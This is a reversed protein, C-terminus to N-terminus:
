AFYGTRIDATAVLLEAGNERRLESIAEELRLIISHRKKYLNTLAKYKKSNFTTAKIEALTNVREEVRREVEAQLQSIITPNCM